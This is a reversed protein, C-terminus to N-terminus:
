EMRRLTANSLVTGLDINTYSRFKVQGDQAQGFDSDKKDVLWHPAQPRIGDFDAPLNSLREMLLYKGTRSCELRGFLELETANLSELGQRVIMEVWNPRHSGNCVKLIWDPHGKVDHVTRGSDTGLEAGVLTAYQDDFGSPVLRSVQSAHINDFVFVQQGLVGSWNLTAFDRIKVNQLRDAGFASRKVDTLWSPYVTGTLSATVDVLREMLLYKGTASISCVQAFLSSYTGPCDTLARSILYEIWNPYPTHISVKMVLDPHGAVDHATRHMGSAFSELCIAEYEVDPSENKPIM